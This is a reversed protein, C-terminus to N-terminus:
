SFKLTQLSLDELLIRHLLTQPIALELSRRSSSLVSNEEVREAVAAINEDRRRRLPSTM